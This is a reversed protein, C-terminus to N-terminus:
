HALVKFYAPVSAAESNVAQVRLLGVDEALYSSVPTEAASGPITFNIPSWTELDESAYLTYRHGRVVMFELRAQGDVFEVLNLRFGDQPDYAYTGALYELLNSIGDGDADGEGSIDGIGLGGGMQQSLLREWADPLGDGDTDEGLTLDLRTSAGPQGLSAYSGSMEIPLYVHPGVQVKLLFPVMPRLATPKYNDDTLGADMPINLRYNVSPDLDSGIHSKISVGGLPQLLIQADAVLTIPRGYEDRVMGYIEHHPAPPFAGLRLIGMLFFTSSICLLRTFGAFPFICFTNM